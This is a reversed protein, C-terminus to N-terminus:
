NMEFCGTAMFETNRPVIGGGVQETIFKLHEACMRNVGILSICQKYNKRALGPQDLKGGQAKELDVACLVFIPQVM